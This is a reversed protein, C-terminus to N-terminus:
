PWLQETMWHKPDSKPVAAELQDTEIKIARDNEIVRVWPVDGERNNAGANM